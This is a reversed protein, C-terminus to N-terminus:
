LELISQIGITFAEYHYVSFGRNLDGTKQNVLAFSYEGLTKSLVAFTKIFAFKQAEYDFPINGEPDSVGEMYDTLFDAVDHKFQSRNNRLAFFRLVLEQDFAGLRREQTLNEICQTFM